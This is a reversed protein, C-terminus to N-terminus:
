LAVTPKSTRAEGRSPRSTSAGRGAPPVGSVSHLERLWAREQARDHPMRGPGANAWFHEQRTEVAGTRVYLWLCAILVLIGLIGFAFATWALAIAGQLAWRFATISGLVVGAMTLAGVVLYRM